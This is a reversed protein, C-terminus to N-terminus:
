VSRSLASGCYRVCREASQRRRTVSEAANVMQRNDADAAEYVAALLPLARTRKRVAHCFARLTAAAIARLGSKPAVKRALATRYAPERLVPLKM